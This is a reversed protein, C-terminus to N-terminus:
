SISIFGNCKLQFSCFPELAIIVIKFTIKGKDEVETQEDSVAFQETVNVSVIEPINENSHMIKNATDDNSESGALADLFANVETGEFIASNNISESSRQAETKTVTSPLSESINEYLEDEIQNGDNVSNDVTDPCATQQSPKHDDPSNKEGVGCVESMEANSDHLNENDIAFLAESMTMPVNADTTPTATIAFEDSVEPANTLNQEHFSTENPNEFPENAIISQSIDNVDRDDAVMEPNLEDDVVTFFRIQNFIRM